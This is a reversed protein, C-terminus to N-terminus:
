PEIEIRGAGHATSTDLAREAAAVMTSVLEPVSVPRSPRRGHLGISVTVAGETGEMPSAGVAEVLDQALVLAGGVDSDSAIILFRAERWCCLVDYKRVRRALRQAVGRAVADTVSGKVPADIEVLLVTVAHGLRDALHLQRTLAELGAERSYLGTLADWLPVVPPAALTQVAGVRDTRLRWGLVGGAALAVLVVPVTFVFTSLDINM